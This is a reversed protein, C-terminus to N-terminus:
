RVETAYGGALPGETILGDFRSRQRPPEYSGYVSFAATPTAGAESCLMAAGAAANSYDDHAGRPHDVMERGSKVVNRELSVLQKIVKEDNPLTIRGGNLLPLMELYLESRTKRATWYDIGHRRFLERPFEGAFRDGTVAGIRYNRLVQAFEAVVAQPSFPPARGLVADVHIHDGERHALALTWADSSGGSPDTFAFYRQGSDFHRISYNGVCARVIELTIFKECDSRFIALYEASNAAEDEALQADIFAQSVTANMARTPARWVLPASEDRGYHKDFAKWLAGKRAYPSSAALLMSGPVTALSPRIAALVAEDPNASEEDAQWFSVEDLLAAIVTRGRISRYNSAVVSIMVRGRLEITEQTENVILRALMPSGQLLGRCFNFIGRAQQRDRALVLVHGVEGAALYPRWDRFCGLFVAVTALIRSKGSRRGCVLWSELYGDPNPITRDTHAAFRELDSDDMPLGFLARLVTFWPQWTDVNEFAHGFLKRDAIAELIDVSV